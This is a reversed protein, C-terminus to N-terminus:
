SWPWNGYKLGDGISDSMRAIIERESLGDKQMTWLMGSCMKQEKGTPAYHQLIMLLENIIQADTMPM